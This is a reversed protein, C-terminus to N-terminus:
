ACGKLYLTVKYKIHIAASATVACKINGKLKINNETANNQYLSTEWGPVKGLVVTLGAFWALDPSRCIKPLKLINKDETDAIM